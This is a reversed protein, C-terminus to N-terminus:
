RPPESRSGAGDQRRRREVLAQLGDLLCRLGFGLFEEPSSTFADDDLNVGRRLTLVGVV